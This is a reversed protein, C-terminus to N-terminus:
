RKIDFKKSRTLYITWIINTVLIIPLGISIIFFITRFLNIENATKQLDLYEAKTPAPNKVSLMFEGMEVQDKYLATLNYLEFLSFLWLGILLIMIVIKLVTKM